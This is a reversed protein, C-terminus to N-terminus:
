YIFSQRLKEAKKLMKKGESGSSVAVLHNGFHFYADSLLILDGTKRFIEIARQFNDYAMKTNEKRGSWRALALFARGEEAKQQLSRALRLTKIIIKYADALRNKKMCIEYFGLMISTLHPKMRAQKAIGYARKLCERAENLRNMQIFTWGVNHLSWVISYVNKHKEQIRLAKQYLSNAAVYDNMLYHIKGINNYVSAAYTQNGVQEFIRRSTEYFGLAKLYKGQRRYIGGLNSMTIAIGNKYGIQRRLVLAKEYYEFAKKHEGLDEYAYAINNLSESEGKVDKIRQRLKLSMKYYYLSEKHDGMSSKVSGINNYCNAMEFYSKRKKLIDLAKSFYELAKKHEGSIELCHGLSVSIAAASHEQKEARCKRLALLATRKSSDFDSLMGQISCKLLFADVIQRHLQTGEFVMLANDICHLAEHNRGVLHLVETKGLLARSVLRTKEPM